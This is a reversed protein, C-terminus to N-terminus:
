SSAERCTLTLTACTGEGPASEFELSGDMREAFTRVLFLGLGMGKGPGKTSLFPEGARRALDADMGIGRDRVQIRLFHDELRLSVRVRGEPGSAECANKALAAISQLLPPLPIAFSHPDQGLDYEVRDRMSEPLYPLMLDPLELPAVLQPADGVGATAREGLDSLIRRCREVESRLLRADEIWEEDPRSTGALRELDSGIIAITSLPTALEHAVGAALTALSAFRERRVGREREQRLENERTRLSTRLGAVFFVLSSGVLLFAAAAGWPVLHSPIIVPPAAVLSAYGLAVLILFSWAWSAPLLISSMALPLFYFVTFPNTTGGAFWLMGSLIIVDAGLLLACAAEQAKPLFLHPRAQALANTTATLALFALLLEWPITAGAWAAALCTLFQGLVAVWRLRVLWLLGPEM